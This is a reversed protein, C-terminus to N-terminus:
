QSCELFMRMPRLNVAPHSVLLRILGALPLLDDDGLTAHHLMIGLRNQSEGIARALAAALGGERRARDWDFAVPVMTIEDCGAVAHDASYGQFGFAPLRAVTAAECRNWPPTFIPDTTGLMAALRERGIMIDACQREIPRVSGFECKRSTAPEYNIHAYGHQHLGIGDHRNRWRLLDEATAADLVAPIVALDVPCGADAFCGLLADLAPMHWGADDDRFFIDVPTRRQDLVTFVERM